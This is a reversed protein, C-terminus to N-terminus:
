RILNVQQQVLDGTRGSLVRLTVTGRSAQIVKGLDTADVGDLSVIVDGVELGVAQAPSGEYVGTIYAGGGDYPEHTVGLWKQGPAITKLPQLYVWPRNSGIILPAIWIGNNWYGHHHLKHQSNLQSNWGDRSWGNKTWSNWGAKGPGKKNLKGGGGADPKAGGANPKAGGAGIKGGVGADTKGGGVKGGVSRAGASGSGKDKSHPENDGRSNATVAFLAIALAAATWRCALFISRM